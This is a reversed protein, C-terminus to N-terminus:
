RVFKKLLLFGAAAAVSLVAAALFMFKGGISSGAASVQAFSAPEDKAEVVESEEKSVEAASLNAKVNVTVANNRVADGDWNFAETLNPYFVAVRSAPGYKLLGTARNLFAIESGAGIKTKSPIIFSNGASDKIVWSGIDFVAKAPNRLKIFGEEGSIVDAISIQNPLVLVELYDSSALTGSSVHLGVVYKGPIQFIHSVIRGEKTDGDGFNWWFRAKEFPEDYKDYAEGFFEIEGGAVATRDEGAFVKMVPPPPSPTAVSAVSPFSPPTSVNPATIASSSNRPTPSATIWSAGSRQMTEKTNKDGAPWSSSANVEDIIASSADKLFLREGGDELAGTYIQNAAIGQVTDDNTRELLFFGSASISGSLAINPIGDEAALTWGDLSILSASSNALELWENNAAQSNTEGAKPLSGMWAVESITVGANAFIGRAQLLFTFLFFILLFKRM